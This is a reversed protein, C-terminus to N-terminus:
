NNTWKKENKRQLLLYFLDKLFNKIFFWERLNFLWHARPFKKLSSISKPHPIPHQGALVARHECDCRETRINHEKCLMRVVDRESKVTMWWWWVCVGIKERISKYLTWSELLFSRSSHVSYLLMWNEEKERMRM